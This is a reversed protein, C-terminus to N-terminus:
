AARGRRSARARSGTIGNTVSSIQVSLRGPGFSRSIAVAAPPGVVSSCSRSTSASTRRAISAVRRQALPAVAHAGGRPRATGARSSASPSCARRRARRAARASRSRWSRRRARRSRRPGPCAVDGHERGVGDVELGLLAARGLPPPGAGPSRARRPCARSRASRPSPAQPRVDLGLAVARALQLCSSSSSVHGRPM